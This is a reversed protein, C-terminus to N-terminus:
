PWATPCTSTPPPSTSCCWPRIRPWPAPWCCKQREGDSLEDVPRDALAATGTAALAAQVRAEDHATSAAWGAPTRTAAWACWSWGPLAAARWRAGHARHQAAAGARRPSLTALSIGNLDLRGSLPPQLGALTRLLTSKGARNPGLLCVLEGPWLALHLHSAVPRPMRKPGFYGVALDDATSHPTPM